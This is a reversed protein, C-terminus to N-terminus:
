ESDRSKKPASAKQKEQVQVCVCVAKTSAATPSVYRGRASGEEFVVFMAREVFPRPFPAFAFTACRYTGQDSAM